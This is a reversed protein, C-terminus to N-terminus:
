CFNSGKIFSSTEHTHSHHQPIHFHHCLVIFDKILVALHFWSQLKMGLNYSMSWAHKLLRVDKIKSIQLNSNIQNWKGSNMILRMWMVWFVWIIEESEKGLQTSAQFLDTSDIYKWWWQVILNSKMKFIMHILRSLDPFLISSFSIVVFSEQTFSLNYLCRATNFTAALPTAADPLNTMFARYVPKIGRTLVNYINNM